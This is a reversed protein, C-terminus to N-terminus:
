KRHKRFCLAGLGLLLITAPEPVLVIRADNGILFLCNIPEGSSLTGTLYRFPEHYYSGGFISALEGYGVSQGDVAFDSGFIQIKSESLLTLDGIEGGSINVQSNDYTYFLYNGIEGGSINVHSSEWCALRVTVGGSINLQSSDYTNLYHSISGCSIDVQSSQYCELNNYIEGGSINVHSSGLSGLINISGGSIDVQSFDYSSLVFISGGSVNIRSHEYGRLYYPDDISGGDQWNVTTHMWPAGLDVWVNDEIAYDIDHTLGDKFEVVGLAPCACMFLVVVTLWITRVNKM